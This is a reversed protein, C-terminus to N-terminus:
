VIRLSLVARDTDGSMIRGRAHRRASAMDEVEIPRLSADFDMIRRANVMTQADRSYHTYPNSRTKM